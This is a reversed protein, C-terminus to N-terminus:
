VHLTQNDRAMFKSLRRPFRNIRRDMPSPRFAWTMGWSYFAIVILVDIPMGFIIYLVPMFLVSKQLVLAQLLIQLPIFCTLHAVTIFTLFLKKFFGFDFIYYTVAFLFPVISILGIGSDMLGEMYSDPTHPFRAPWFAFYILASWQVLLIGRVLYIIPILRESLFFTAAFVLLSVACILSWTQATPLLPEMSLYPIRLKFTSFQYNAVEVRASLPLRYVSWVLFHNWFNCARPLLCLWAATFAIILSISTALNRPGLRFHTFARHVSIVGGRHGRLRVQETSGSAESSRPAHIQVESTRSFAL